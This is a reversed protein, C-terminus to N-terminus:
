NRKVPDFNSVGIVAFLIVALVVGGAAISLLFNKLSASGGSADEVAQAVDPVMVAASLVGAALSGGMKLQARVELRSRARVPLQHSASISTSKPEIFLPQAKSFHTPSPTIAMSIPFTSAM